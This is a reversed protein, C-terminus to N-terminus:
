QDFRCKSSTFRSNTKTEGANEICQKYNLNLAEYQKKSVCSTLTLAIAGVAFIKLIKM